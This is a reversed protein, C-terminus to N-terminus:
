PIVTPPSPLARRDRSRRATPGTQHDGAVISIQPPDGASGTVNAPKPFGCGDAVVAAILM